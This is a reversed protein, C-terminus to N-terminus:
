NNQKSLQKFMALFELVLYLKELHLRFESIQTIIRSHVFNNRDRGLHELEEIIRKEKRLHDMLGKDFISEANEVYVLNKVFGFYHIIKYLNSISNIVEVNYRNKKILTAISVIPKHHIPVKLKKTTNLIQESTEALKDIYREVLHPIECEIAKVFPLLFCSLDYNSANSDEIEKEFNSMLNEGAIILQQSEKCLNDFWIQKKINKNLPSITKIVLNDIEGYVRNQDFEIEEEYHSGMEEMCEKITLVKIKDIYINIQKLFLLYVDGSYPKDYRYIDTAMFKQIDDFIGNVRFQNLSAAIGKLFSVYLEKNEKNKTNRGINFLKAPSTMFGNKYIYALPVNDEIPIEGADGDSVAYYEFTLIADVDQLRDLIDTKKLEEHVKSIMEIYKRKIEIDM